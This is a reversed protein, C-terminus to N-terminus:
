HGRASVAPVHDSCIHQSGARRKCNTLDSKCDLTLGDVPIELIVRGRDKLALSPNLGRFRFRAWTVSPSAVKPHLSQPPPQGPSGGAGVPGWQWGKGFIPETPPLPNYVLFAAMLRTDKHVSVAAAWAGAAAWVRQALRCGQGAAVPCWWTAVPGVGTGGETGRSFSDCPHDWSKLGPALPLRMFISVGNTETRGLASPSGLAGESIWSDSGPSCVRGSAQWPLPSPLTLGLRTFRLM